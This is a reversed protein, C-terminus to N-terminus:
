TEKYMSVSFLRVREPGHSIKSDDMQIALWPFVFIHHRRGAKSNLSFHTQFLGALWCIFSYFLESDIWHHSKKLIRCDTANLNWNERERRRRRANHTRENVDDDSIPM